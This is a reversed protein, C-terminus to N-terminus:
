LVFPVYRFPFQDEAQSSSIQDAVTTRHISVPTECFREVSLL